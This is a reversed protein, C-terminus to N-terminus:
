STVVPFIVSDVLYSTSVSGFRGRFVGEARKPLSFKATPQKVLGLVVRTPVSRRSGL